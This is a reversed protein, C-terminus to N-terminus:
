FLIRPFKKFFFTVWVKRIFIRTLFTKLEQLMAESHVAHHTLTRVVLIGPYRSKGLNKRVIDYIDKLGLLNRRTLQTLAEGLSGQLDQRWQTQDTIYNFSQNLYEHRYRIAVSQLVGFRQLFAEEHDWKGLVKRYNGRTDATLVGTRDELMMARDFYAMIVDLLLLYLSLSKIRKANEPSPITQLRLLVNGVEKESASPAQRLLRKAHRAVEESKESRVGETMWAEIAEVDPAIGTAEEEPIGGFLTGQLQM